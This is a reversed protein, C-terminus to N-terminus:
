SETEMVGRERLAIGKSAACLDAVSFAADAAEDVSAFYGFCASGSGTLCVASGWAARVDSIFDGLRPELELAAPLLDNRMPMTGRLPPPLQDDRLPEGLPGEMEDWKRYVEATALGFEPVVVAVAFGSLDRLRELREGFGTMLLTGGILFLPVDAGIRAAISELSVSSAAADRAAVLAAAADSSGGGLGSAVPIAKDLELSLPPVSLEARAESVARLVLNNEAGPDFGTVDLQDSGEGPEASLRDVWDITQVISELPHFGNSAPPRVHLSLNLKAPAQYHRM